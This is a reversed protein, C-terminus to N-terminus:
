WESQENSLAVPPEFTLQAPLGRDLTPRRLVRASGGCRGRRGSWDRPRPRDRLRSRTRRGEVTHTPAPLLQDFGSRLKMPVQHLGGRLRSMASAIQLTVPVVLVVVGVPLTSWVLFPTAM